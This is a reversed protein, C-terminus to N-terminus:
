VNPHKAMVYYAKNIGGDYATQITTKSKKKLKLDFKETKGTLKAEM